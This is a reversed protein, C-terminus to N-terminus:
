LGTMRGKQRITVVDGELEAIAPELVSRGGPLLDYALGLCSEAMTGHGAKFFRAWDRVMDAGPVIIGHRGEQSVPVFWLRGDVRRDLKTGDRSLDVAEARYVRAFNELSVLDGAASNYNSVRERAEAMVHNWGESTGNSHPISTEFPADVGPPGLYEVEELAGPRWDLGAVEDTEVSQAGPTVFQTDRLSELEAKLQRLEPLLQSLQAILAKLNGVDDTIFGDNSVSLMKARQMIFRDARLWGLLALCLASIILQAVSWWPPEDRRTATPNIPQRSQVAASALEPPRAGEVQDAAGLGVALPDQEVQELAEDSAATVSGDASRLQIGQPAASMAPMACLIAASLGVSSLTMGCPRRPMNGAWSKLTGIV